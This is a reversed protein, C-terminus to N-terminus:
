RSRLVDLAVDPVNTCIGDIGWSVLEAMRQSDDCTWTNVSIGRQHCADVLDSTLTAVWPHLACHGDAVLSDLVAAMDPEPIGITLWATPVVTTARRLADITERRFSSVLYRHPDGRGLLVGAVDAAVSEDPDFDPETPDNKIEVNVWMGACADLAEGLGPVHDPLDRRATEVINRGDALRPDHHVVLHGDSSRRVDLEVADAGM